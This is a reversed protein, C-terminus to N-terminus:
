RMDPPTITGKISSVIMAACTPGCGYNAIDQTKDGIVTYPHKAWRSDVQSFYTLGKYSGLKVNPTKSAGKYAVQGQQEFKQNKGVNAEQVALSQEDEQTLNPIETTSMNNEIINVVTSIGESIKNVDDETYNIGFFVAAVTLLLTVVSVIIKKKNM